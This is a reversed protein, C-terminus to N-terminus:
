AMYLSGAMGSAFNASASIAEQEMLDRSPMSESPIKTNEFTRHAGLSGDRSAICRRAMPNLLYTDLNVQANTGAKSADSLAVILDCPTEGGPINWKSPISKLLLDPLSLAKVRIKETSTCECVLQADEVALYDPFKPDHVEITFTRTQQFMFGAVLAFAAVLTVVYCVTNVFGRRLTVPEEKYIPEKYLNAVKSVAPM